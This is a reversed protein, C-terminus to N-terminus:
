LIRHNKNHSTRTAAMTIARGLPSRPARLKARQRCVALHTEPIKRCSSFFRNMKESSPPEGVSLLDVTSSSSDITRYAKNLLANFDSIIEEKFIYKGQNKKSIIETLGVSVQDFISTDPSLQAM